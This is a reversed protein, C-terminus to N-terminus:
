NTYKLLRGMIREMDRLSNCSEVMSCYPTYQRMISDGSNWSSRNEPNLWLVRQARNYVERWIDIRGDDHNNRADGLMIVQTKHDIDKLALDSFDELARGYDTSYNAWREMILALAQEPPYDRFCHTVDALENSFVFSRVRPLAQQLSYVFLLLFRAVSNVSGSVDCIVMLRPRDIRTSKWRTHILYGDFASNAAITKRVDLLGRRNIKRRRSHQSALKKAIKQILRKMQQQQVHDTHQLKIARLSNETLQEGKKGSYLLYQQEVYDKVRDVLQLRKRQLQAVLDLQHEQSQLTMLEQQLERDGMYQLIRASVQNKQLFITMEQAGAAAGGQVMARHLAATEDNFLMNGLASQFPSSAGAFSDEPLKSSDEAASKPQGAQKHSPDERAVFFQEFLNELVGRHELTKALTLSLSSKLRQRNDVGVIRTANLADLTETPSIPLGHHRLSQVFDVVVKEM